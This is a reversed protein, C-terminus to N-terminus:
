AKPKKSVIPNEPYMRDWAARLMSISERAAELVEDPVEAPDPKKDLFQPTRLGFRWWNVKHVITVHPPEVRERDRIKVKWGRNEWLPPLKLQYAV